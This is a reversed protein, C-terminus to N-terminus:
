FYRIGASVELAAAEGQVQAPFILIGATDHRRRLVNLIDRLAAAQPSTVIGVKGRRIPITVDGCAAANRSMKFTSLRRCSVAPIKIKGACTCPSAAASSTVAPM